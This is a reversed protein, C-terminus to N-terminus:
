FPRIEMPPDGAAPMMDRSKVLIIQDVLTGPERVYLEVTNRGAPVEVTFEAPVDEDSFSWHWVEPYASGKWSTRPVPQGNVTLYVSDDGGADPGSRGRIGTYYSGGEQVDIEYAVKASTGFEDYRDPGDGPMDIEEPDTDLYGTGGYGPVSDRVVWRAQPYASNEPVVQDSFSEAEIVIRGPQQRYLVEGGGDVQEAGTAVDPAEMEEDRACGAVLPLLLLM